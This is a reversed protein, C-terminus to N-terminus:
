RSVRDNTKVVWRFECESTIPNAIYRAVGAMVAEERLLSRENWKGICFGFIFACWMCMVSLWFMLYRDKM